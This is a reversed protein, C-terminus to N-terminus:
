QQRHTHINTQRDKTIYMSVNIYMIWAHLFVCIFSSCGSSSSLLMTSRITSSIVSADLLMMSMPLSTVPSNCASVLSSAPLMSCYTTGRCIGSLSLKSGVVLSLTSNGSDEVSVCGCTYNSHTCLWWVNIYQSTYNDWPVLIECLKEYNQSKTSEVKTNKSICM